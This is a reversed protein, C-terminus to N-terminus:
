GPGGEDPEGRGEHLRVREPHRIALTQAIMAGLSHGVVHAAPWGLADLVATTDDAMDQLRYPAASRPNLLMALLGPIGAADLHTSLGTDRNDFRAIQFGHEALVACFDGPWYVSPMGTGAILVLPEGKAPGSTEYALNVAGHRATGTAM